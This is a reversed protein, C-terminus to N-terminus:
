DPDDTVYIVQLSEEFSKMFEENTTQALVLKTEFKHKCNEPYPATLLDELSKDSNQPQKSAPPPAPPVKIGKAEM